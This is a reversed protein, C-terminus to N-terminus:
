TPKNSAPTSAPSKRSDQKHGNSAANAMGATTREPLLDRELQACTSIITVMAETMAEGLDSGPRHAISDHM